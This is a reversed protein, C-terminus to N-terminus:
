GFQVPRITGAMEDNSARARFAPTVTAYPVRAGVMDFQNGSTEGAGPSM